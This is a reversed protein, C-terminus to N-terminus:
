EAASERMLGPVGSGARRAARGLWSSAGSPLQGETAATARDAAPHHQEGDPLENAALEVWSGGSPPRVMGGGVACVAAM